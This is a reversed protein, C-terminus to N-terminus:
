TRRRLPQCIARERTEHARRPWPRDFRNYRQAANGFTACRHLRISRGGGCRNTLQVNANEM